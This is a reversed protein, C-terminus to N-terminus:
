LSPSAAKGGPTKVPPLIVQWQRSCLTCRWYEIVGFADLFREVRWFRRHAALCWVRM